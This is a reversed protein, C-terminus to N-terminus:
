NKRKKMVVTKIVLKFINKNSIIIAFFCILQVIVSLSSNEIFMSGFQISVIILQGFVLKLIMSRNEVPLKIERLFWMFMFGILSSLAVANTGLFSILAVTGIISILVGLVSTKLIVSSNKEAILRAGLFSALCSFLVSFLLLPILKWSAYYSVPAIIKLIFKIMIMILSTAIFLVGIYAEYINEFFDNGDLGEDEFEQIVSIEWSQSFISAIVTLIIPIKNAISFLGNEASGLFILIMYRGFTNSFNWAISNPMLSLSFKVYNKVKVLSFSSMDFYQYIRLVCIMMINSLVLAIATSIFYGNFGMKLPILFIINLVSIAISLFIGNAAFLSVKDVGKAFTSLFNQTIQLFVLIPLYVFKTNVVLFVPIFILSAISGILAVFGCNMFINQQSIKKDMSFRLVSDFINGAFIPMILLVTTQIVDVLGFDSQSLYFTYLPLMIFSILRNGMFGLGFLISNKFLKLYKKM